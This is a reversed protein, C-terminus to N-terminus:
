LRLKKTSKKVKAFKERKVAILGFCIGGEGWGGEPPSPPVTYLYCSYLHAHSTSTYYYFFFDAVGGELIM